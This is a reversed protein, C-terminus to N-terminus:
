LGVLSMFFVGFDSFFDSAIRSSDKLFGEPDRLVGWFSM